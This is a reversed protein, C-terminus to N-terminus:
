QVQDHVEPTALPKEVEEQPMEAPVIVGQLVGYNRLKRTIARTDVGTLVPVDQEDLFQEANKAGGTAPIIVCLESIM